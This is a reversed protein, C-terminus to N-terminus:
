RKISVSAALVSIPQTPDQTKTLSPATSLLKEFQPTLTKKSIKVNRPVMQFIGTVDVPAATSILSSVPKTPSGNNQLAEITLRDTLSLKKPTRPLSPNLPHLQNIREKKRPSTIIESLSNSDINCHTKLHEQTEQSLSKIVLVLINIQWIYEAQFDLLIKEHEKLHPQALAIEIEKLTNKLVPFINGLKKGHDKGNIKTCYHKEYLATSGAHHFFTVTNEQYNRDAVYSYILKLGSMIKTFLKPAATELPKLTTISEPSPLSTMVKHKSPSSIINKVQFDDPGKTSM